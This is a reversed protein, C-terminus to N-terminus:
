ALLKTRGCVPCAIRLPRQTSVSLNAGCGSCVGKARGPEVPGVQRRAWETPVPAPLQEMTQQAWSKMSPPARMPPRQPPANVPVNRPREFAEDQMAVGPTLVMAPAKAPHTRAHAPPPPAAAVPASPRPAPPVFTVPSEEVVELEVPEDTPPRRRAALVVLACLGFGGVLAGGVLLLETQMGHLFGATPSKFSGFHFERTM